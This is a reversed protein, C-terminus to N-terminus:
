ISTLATEIGYKRSEAKVEARRQLEGVFSASSLTEVALYSDVMPLVKGRTYRPSSSEQMFSFPNPCVIDEFERVSILEIQYKKIMEKFEEGSSVLALFASYCLPMKLISCVQDKTTDERQKRYASSFKLKQRELFGTEESMWKRLEKEAQGFHKAIKQSLVVNNEYAYVGEGHIACLRGYLEYFEQDFVQLAYNIVDLYSMQKRHAQDWLDKNDHDRFRVAKLQATELQTLNSEFIESIEKVKMTVVVFHIKNLYRKNLFFSPSSPFDFSRKENLKWPFKNSGLDPPGSGGIKTARRAVESFSTKEGGLQVM